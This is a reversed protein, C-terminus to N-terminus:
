RQVARETLRMARGFGTVVIEAGQEQAVRAASFAISDDTTIGTILLRKGALLM